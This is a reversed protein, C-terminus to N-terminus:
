ATADAQMRRAGVGDDRRDCFIMHASPLVPRLCPQSLGLEVQQATFDLRSALLRKISLAWLVKAWDLRRRRFPKGLRNTRYRRIPTARRRAGALRPQVVAPRGEGFFSTTPSYYVCLARQTQYPSAAGGQGQHVSYYLESAPRAWMSPRFPTPRGYRGQAKAGTGDTLWGAARLWPQRSRTRRLHLPRFGTDTARQLIKMYAGPRGLRPMDLPSEVPTELKLRSRWEHAGGIGAAAAAPEVQTHRSWLGLKFGRTSCSCCSTPSTEVPERALALAYFAESQEPKDVYLIVFNPHGNDTELTEIQPRM